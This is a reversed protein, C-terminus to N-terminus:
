TKKPALPALLLPLPDVVSRGGDLRLEFHLHPGFSYGTSGAEGIPEGAQVQDGVRVYRKALHAYVSVSGDEHSLKVLNGYGMVRPWPKGKPWSAPAALGPRWDPPDNPSLRSDIVKGAAVARVETGLPARLDVGPHLPGDPRPRPGFPSVVFLCDVPPVLEM